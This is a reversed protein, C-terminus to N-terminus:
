DRGKPVTSRDGTGAQRIAAHIRKIVLRRDPSIFGETLAMKAFYHPFVRCSADHHVVLEAANQLAKVSWSTEFLERLLTEDHSQEPSSGQERRLAQIFEWVILRQDDDMRGMAQALVCLLIAGAKAEDESSQNGPPNM